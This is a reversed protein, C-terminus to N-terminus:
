FLSESNFAKTTNNQQHEQQQKIYDLNELCPFKPSIFGFLYGHNALCLVVPDFGCCSPSCDFSITICCLCSVIVVSRHFITLFYGVLMSFSGM